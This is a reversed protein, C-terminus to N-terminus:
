RIVITPANRVIVEPDDICRILPTYTGPTLVIAPASPTDASANAILWTSLGDTDTADTWTDGRDLSLSWRAATVAPETTITLQYKEVGGPLLEFPVTSM